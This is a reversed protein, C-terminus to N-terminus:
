GAQPNDRYEETSGPLPVRIIGRGSGVADKWNM